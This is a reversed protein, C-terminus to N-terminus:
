GHDQKCIKSNKQEEGLRVKEFKIKRMITVAKRHSELESNISFKM